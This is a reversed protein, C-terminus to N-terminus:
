RDRLEGILRRREHAVSVYRSLTELFEMEDKDFVERAHGSIADLGLHEGVKAFLAPLMADPDDSVLLIGSAQWLLRLRENQKQVAAEATRCEFAQQELQEQRQINDAAFADARRRASHLAECLGSVLLGVFAFQAVLPWSPSQQISLYTSGLAGLATALLGPKLGGCWAAAGVAAVFPLVPVNVGLWIALPLRLMLAAGTAGAAVLYGAAMSGLEERKNEDMIEGPALWSRDMTM